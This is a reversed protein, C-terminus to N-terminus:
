KRRVKGLLALASLALLAAGPMLAARTPAVTSQPTVKPEIGEATPHTAIVGATAGGIPPTVHIVFTSVPQRGPGPATASCPSSDAEGSLYIISVMSGDNRGSYRTSQGKNLSQDLVTMGASKLLVRTSLAKCVPGACQSCDPLTTYEFTYGGALQVPLTNPDGYIDTTVYGEAGTVASVLAIGAWQGGSGGIITGAVLDGNHFTNFAGEEPVGGVIQLPTIPSYGCAPAGKSYDCGYLSEARITLTQSLPDMATVRGVYASEQVLAATPMALGILIIGLLCGLFITKKRHMIHIVQM